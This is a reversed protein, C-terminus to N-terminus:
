GDSGDCDEDTGNGLSDYRGPSRSSNQDDCDGGNESFGDGDDDSAATGEDVSLDCDDDRGNVTEALGPARDPDADDCDGELESVGDEDDDFADTGEDIVGDCDDDINNIAETAGPHIEDFVDDCDGGEVAFGDGDLDVGAVSGDCDADVGALNAPSDPYVAAHEDYCDGQLESFGDDDDDYAETHDDIIGNCDNDQGDVFEVAGFYTLAQADDCDGGCATQGDGDADVVSVPNDCYNAYLELSLSESEAYAIALATHCEGAETLTLEVAVSEEPALSEPWNASVTVGDPLTADGLVVTSIGLNVLEVTRHAGPAVPGFDVQAPVFQLNPVAGIGYLAFVFTDATPGVLDVTCGGVFPGESTPSFRLLIDLYDSEDEAGSESLVTGNPDGVLEMSTGVCEVRNVEVLADGTNRLNIEQEATDGLTVAGFDIANHLAVVDGKTQDTISVDGGCGALAVAAVARRRRLLPLALLVGLFSPVGPVSSCGRSKTTTTDDEDCGEDVWGDCNEDAPTDNAYSCLEVANPHVNGTSDDCDGESETFGDQDDDYSDTHEDKYGDCDDDVGNEDEIAGPFVSVVADDCDGEEESFGDGDDDTVATDEDTRGDCNDDLGNLLEVAGDFVDPDADNCDGQAESQGDGDDDYELTGEDIEDDCDDDDGNPLELDAPSITASGDNCDGGNETFGDGDDDFDDTGEDVGGDCDDDLSNVIETAGPHVAANGDHCDGEAITYNDGDFDEVVDEDTAGDCDDDVSNVVELGGPHRDDNADDCDGGSETFGDGDDDYASTGDDVKGDCDEDVGDISETAGVHVSADGDHCDDGGFEKSGYGDGDEDVGDGGVCDDDVGNYYIETADPHVSGLTDDCDDTTLARFNSAICDLSFGDVVTSVGYGDNDADLYCSDVADCDQDVFDGVTESAFPHVSLAGDDCDGTVTAVGAESACDLTTSDVLSSTGYGDNDGDVYCSDVGDCDQDVGDAVVESANPYTGVLADNCDTSVAARNADTICNLTYGDIASNIGYGDNDADIYCSDVSDCDQDVGDAIVDTAGPHILASGDDCDGTPDSSVAEGSDQCSSNASNVVAGADPRYGDNDADVYCVEKGDCDRDVEDGTSEAAGPYTLFNNDNCDGAVAARQSDNVCSLSGGDIPSGTGFGDNDFDLYCSDVGDCDQDIDDGVTESAGPYVFSSLDNCDTAPDSAIAEYSDGCSLNPSVVTGASPPRYGDNDADPYCLEKSDCDQDIGDAITETATPHVSFAGDDCDTSDVVYGTPPTCGTVTVNVNGYTDSDSDAYFVYTPGGIKDDEDNCDTGFKIGDSDADDTGHFILAKGAGTRGSGVLVDDFGDGNYDGMGAISAGGNTHLGILDSMMAASLGTPGGHYFNTATTAYATDVVVDDHGDGNLDGAADMAGAWTTAMRFDVADAIGTASGYYVMMSGVSGIQPWESAAVDGYGDSNVDGINAVLHGYADDTTGTGHLTVAATTSVGSAGGHYVYAMANTGTTLQGVIVDDYGDNNVDGASSVSLGFNNGQALTSTPGAAIGSSNGHYVFAAAGSGFPFQGVIVDDYGDNNVDGASAVSTGFGANVSGGNWTRIATTSVGTSSGLFVRVRGMGNYAPEGIVVDDYGDANVDGAASIWCQNALSSGNDVSISTLATTGSHFVYVVGTNSGNAVAALVMADATGDGNVDGPGAVRTGFYAEGLNGVLTTSVLSYVPDVQIPFAAGEDDVVVSFGSRSEEFWIPLSTGSDDWAKLGAVSWQRGDDDNLLVKRESVEADAGDIAVDFALAGVGDLRGGLTWGQQFRGNRGTWWEVVDGRSYEMRWDCAAAPDCNVSSPPISEASEIRDGRRVGEFRIGLADHRFGESTFEGPYGGVEQPAEDRADTPPSCSALLSLGALLRTGSVQSITRTM